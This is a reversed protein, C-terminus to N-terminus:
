RQGQILNNIEKVMTKVDADSLGYMEKTEELGHGAALKCGACMLGYEMLVFVADPCREIIESIKTKLTIKQIQQSKQKQM